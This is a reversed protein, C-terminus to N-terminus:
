AASELRAELALGDATRRLVRAQLIRGSAPKPTDRLRVALFNPTFGAAFRGGADAREDEVLVALTRGLQRDLYARRLLAGLEALARARTRKIADPVQDPLRAAQTGARPSYPFIHLQGFGIDAVLDMTQQWQADTEGPFGVIIDTTLNCDPRAARARAALARFSESRCRRAM